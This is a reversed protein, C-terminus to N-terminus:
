QGFKPTFEGLDLTEGPKAVFEKYGFSQDFTTPIRYTAGPILASYTIRLDDDWKLPESGYGYNFQDVNANFDVDAALKGLRQSDFDYKPVGPNLVFYLFPTM